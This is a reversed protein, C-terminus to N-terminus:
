VSFCYIESSNRNRHARIYPQKKAAIAIEPEAVKAEAFTSYTSKYRM